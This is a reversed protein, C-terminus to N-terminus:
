SALRDLLAALRLAAQGRPSRTAQEWRCLTYPPVGILKAVETQTFGSELRIAKARGSRLQQRLRALRLAKEVAADDLPESDAVDGSGVTLTSM